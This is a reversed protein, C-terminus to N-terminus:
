RGTWPEDPDLDIPGTPSVTNNLIHYCRRTAWSIGLNLVSLGTDRGVGGEFGETRPLSLFNTLRNTVPKCKGLCIEQSREDQAHKQSVFSNTVGTISTATVSM